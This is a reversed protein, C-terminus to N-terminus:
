RLPEREAEVERQPQRRQRRRWWWWQLGPCSSSLVGGGHGGRRSSCQPPPPSYPASLLSWSTPSRLSLLVSSPGASSPCATLDGPGPRWPLGTRLSRPWLKQLLSPEQLGGGLSNLPRPRVSPGLPSSFTASWSPSAAVFPLQRTKSFGPGKECLQAASALAKNRRRM